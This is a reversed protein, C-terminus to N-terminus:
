KLGYIEEYQVYRSRGIIYLPRGAADKIVGKTEDDAVPFNIQYSKGDSVQIGYTEVSNQISVSNQKYKYTETKGTSDKVTFSKADFNIDFKQGREDLAKWLGRYTDSGSCSYLSILVLTLLFNTLKKM